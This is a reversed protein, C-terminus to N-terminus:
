PETARLEILAMLAQFAAARDEQERAQNFREVNKLRSPAPPENTLWRHNKLIRTMTDDIVDFALPQGISAILDNVGHMILKVATTDKELRTEAAEDALAATAIAAVKVQALGWNLLQTAQDDDLNSRLSSDEMLLEAWQRARRRAIRRDSQQEDM